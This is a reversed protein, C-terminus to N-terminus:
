PRPKNTFKTEETREVLAETNELVGLIKNKKGKFFIKGSKNLDMKIENHEKAVEDFDDELMRNVLPQLVVKEIFKRAPRGGMAPDYSKEVIFDVLKPTFELSFDHEEKITVSLKSLFKDVVLKYIEPSLSNFHFISDYRNIIEPRLGEKIAEMRFEDKEKKTLDGQYEVEAGLNSTAIIITEKFFIDEGKNDTCVGHDMISLLTKDISPHAKELEDLLVICAPNEKVFNTLLGGESYGVYGKSVGILKTVDQELGYEGMNIKLIPVSLKDAMSQALETKGVGSPGAFLYCGAPKEKNIKIGLAASKLITVVEDIVPDQGFVRTKLQDALERVKKKTLLKSEALKKSYETKDKELQPNINGSGSGAQPESTEKPQSVQSMESRVLPNSKIKKTEEEIEKKLNDMFTAASSSGGNNKASKGLAESNTDVMSQLKSIQEQISTRNGSLNSIEEGQRNIRDQNDSGISSIMGNLKTLLGGIGRSETDKEAM